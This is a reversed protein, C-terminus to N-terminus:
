RPMLYSGPYLSYAHQRSSLADVVRSGARSVGVAGIATVTAVVFLATAAGIIRLM